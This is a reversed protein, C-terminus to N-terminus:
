RAPLIQVRSRSSLQIVKIALGVRSKVNMKRMASTIHHEVTRKSIYLSEAIEQNTKEEIIGKVVNWEMQTLDLLPVTEIDMNLRNILSPVAEKYDCSVYGGGKKVGQIAVALEKTNSKSVFGPVGSQFLQLWNTQDPDQFIIVQKLRENKLCCSKSCGFLIIEEEVKNVINAQCGSTCFLMNRVEIFPYSELLTKIGIAMAELEEVITVTIKNEM